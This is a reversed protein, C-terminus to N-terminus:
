TPRVGGRQRALKVVRRDAPAASPASPHRFHVDLACCCRAAHCLRKPSDVGKPSRVLYRSQGYTRTVLVSVLDPRTSARVSLGPYNVAPM